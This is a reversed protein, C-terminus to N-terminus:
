TPSSRLEMSLKEEWIERLFSFQYKMEKEIAELRTDHDVNSVLRYLKILDADSLEKLSERMESLCGWSLPEIDECKTLVLWGGSRGAIGFEYDGQDGGSVTTYKGEVYQSVGNQCAEWFLEDNEKLYKEWADDLDSNVEGDGDKGDFDFGHVKIDWAFGSPSYANETNHVQHDCLFEIMERRSDLPFLEKELDSKMKEPYIVRDPEPKFSDPTAKYYDFDPSRFRPHERCFKSFAKWDMAMIRDFEAKQSASPGFSGSLQPCHQDLVVQLNNEDLIAIGNHEPGVIGANYAGAIVVKFLRNRFSKEGIAGDAYHYRGIQNKIGDSM